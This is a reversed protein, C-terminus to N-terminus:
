EKSLGLSVYTDGNLLDSGHLDVVWYDAQKRMEGIILNNPASIHLLTPDFPGRIASFNLSIPACCGKAPTWALTGTYAQTTNAVQTFSITVTGKEVNASTPTVINMAGTWTGVLIEAFPHSTLVRTIPASLSPSSDVDKILGVGPAWYMTENQVTSVYTVQYVNKYVGAPVTVPGISVVTATVANGHTDTYTWSSSGKPPIEFWPISYPAPAGPQNPDYQYLTKSTTRVDLSENLGDNNWDTLQMIAWLYSPTVGGGPLTATGTFQIACNWTSTGQTASYGATYGNAFPFVSSAAHAAATMPLLMSVLALLLMLKRM